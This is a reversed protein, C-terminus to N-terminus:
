LSHGNRDGRRLQALAQELQRYAAASAARQDPMLRCSRAAEELTRLIGPIAAEPIDAHAGRYNTLICQIAKPLRRGDVEGDALLYPLKWTNPRSPDPVFAFCRAPLQYKKHLLEDSGESGPAPVAAAILGRPWAIVPEGERARYVGDRSLWWLDEAAEAANLQVLLRPRAGGGDWEEAYLLEGDSVAVCTIKQEAAYRWAQELAKVVAARQWQLTGPRKAEIVLRKIGLATLVFDAREVQYNMGELPWDLVNTFLDTLIDEAVKEAAQGYRQQQALRAARRALFAAWNADMRGRCQRYSSLETYAQRPPLAGTPLQSM